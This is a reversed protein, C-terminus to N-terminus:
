TKDVLPKWTWTSGHVTLLGAAPAHTEPLRPTADATGPSIRARTGDRGGSRAPSPAPQTPGHVVLDIAPGAALEPEGSPEGDRDDRPAEALAAVRLGSKASLQQYLQLVDDAQWACGDGGAALRLSSGAGPLLAIAAEPLEIWRVLRGDVVPEGKAALTAIAATEAAVSELDGPLAIVPSAPKALVGLTAELEPQTTGMGGLALVLEAHAEDLKARLRGLAALTKPDAGGADAVIGIVLDGGHKLSHGTLEWGKGLTATPEPLDEAICRWPAKTHEAAALAAALANAIRPAASAPPKPGGCAFLILTLPLTRSAQSMVVRPEGRM